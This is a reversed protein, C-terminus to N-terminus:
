LELGHLLGYNLQQKSETSGTVICSSTESVTAYVGVQRQVGEVPAGHLRIPSHFHTEAMVSSPAAHPHVTLKM